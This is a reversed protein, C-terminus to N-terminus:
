YNIPEFSETFPPMELKLYRPSAFLFSLHLNVQSAFFDGSQVLNGSSVVEKLDVPRQKRAPLIDTLIPRSESTSKIAM